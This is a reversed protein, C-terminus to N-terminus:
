LLLLPWVHNHMVILHFWRWSQDIKTKSWLWRDTVQWMDTVWRSTMCSNRLSIFIDWSICQGPLTMRPHGAPAARILHHNTRILLSPTWLTSMFHHSRRMTKKWDKLGYNSSPKDIMAQEHHNMAPLTILIEALWSRSIESKKNKWKMMM